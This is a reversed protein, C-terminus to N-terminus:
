SSAKKTGKGLGRYTLGAGIVVEQAFANRGDILIPTNLKKKLEKLNLMQYQRHNTSIIVVDAGDLAKDLDKTFSFEYDTVIPDHLVPKANRRILENYLITTPTNRTDDSNELFAVGLVAIKAGEIKKKHEALAEQALDVLHIPMQDNLERSAVIIQPYFNSKGNIDL